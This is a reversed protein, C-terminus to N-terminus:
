RAALPEELEWDALARRVARVFPLPNIGFLGNMEQAARQSRPLVDANLSGMLARVLDADSGAIKSGVAAFAPATFVSLKVPPRDLELEAAIGELIEAYTLPDPGVIDISRGCTADILPTRVLCEVVDREAIPQTSRDRWPPLPLVPIREILRVMLRFSPSGAGIIISARLGAAAPLGEMLIREVELRSRMHPSPPGSPEIGGLYVVRDVGARRCAAVFNRAAQRDRAEFSSAGAEMSHVLYYAVDCGELAADLGEDNLVDGRVTQVGGPPPVKPPRRSLARVARGEAVLARTLLSGVYGTAGVILDM